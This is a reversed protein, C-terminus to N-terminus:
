KRIPESLDLDILAAKNFDTTFFTYFGNVINTLYAIIFMFICEPNCIAM